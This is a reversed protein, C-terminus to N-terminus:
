AVWEPLIRAVRPHNWVHFTIVDLFGDMWALERYFQDLAQHERHCVFAVPYEIGEQTNAGSNNRSNSV